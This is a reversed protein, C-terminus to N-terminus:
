NLSDLDIKGTVVDNMRQQVVYRLRDMDIGWSELMYRKMLDAKQTILSGGVPGAGSVLAKWESETRIIYLATVEAIDERPESMAYTSVFGKEAATQPSQNVWNGTVYELDTILDFATDYNKTQHLIHSFEHHMTEFFYTNLFKKDIQLGNVNYLTIKVGGEALGLIATGDGNYAPSGVLHIMKPAYKRTFNIGAVEDYAELWCYKILHAVRIAQEYNAPSLTYNFDTEMDQLRYLLSINYPVVYNRYKWEDFATQQTAETDVFASEGTLADEGCASLLGVLLLSAAGCGLRM